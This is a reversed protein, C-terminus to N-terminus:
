NDISLVSSYFQTMSRVYACRSRLSSGVARKSRDASFVFTLLVKSSMASWGMAEWSSGLSCLTMFALSSCHSLSISRAIIALHYHCCITWALQQQKHTFRRDWPTELRHLNPYKLTCCIKTRGRRWRFSAAAFLADNSRAGLWLSPIIM